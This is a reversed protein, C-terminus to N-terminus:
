TDLNCYELLAEFKQVKIDEPGKGFILNEYELVAEGDNSVELDSFQSCALFSAVLHCRM